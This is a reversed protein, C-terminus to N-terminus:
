GELTKNTKAFIFLYMYIFKNERREKKLFLMRHVRRPVKRNERFIDEPIVRM